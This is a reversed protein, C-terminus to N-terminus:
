QNLRSSGACQQEMPRCIGRRRWPVAWSVIGSM